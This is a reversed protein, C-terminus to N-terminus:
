VADTNPDVGTGTTPQGCKYCDLRKISEVGRANSQEVLVVKCSPCLYDTSGSFAPNTVGLPGVLRRTAIPIHWAQNWSLPRLERTDSM